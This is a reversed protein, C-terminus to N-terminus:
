NDLDCWGVVVAHVQDNQQDKIAWPHSAYTSQTYDDGPEISGYTTLQGDYSIWAMEVVRESLNNFTLTIPLDGGQSM